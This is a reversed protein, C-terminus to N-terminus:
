LSWAGAPCSSTYQCSSPLLLLAGWGLHAVTQSTSPQTGGHALWPKTQRTPASSFFPASSRAACARLTIYFCPRQDAREPVARERVGMGVVRDRPHVAPPLQPKYYQVVTPLDALSSTNYDVPDDTADPTKFLDGPAGYISFMVYRLWRLPRNSLREIDSNPVSIFPAKPPQRYNLYIDVM